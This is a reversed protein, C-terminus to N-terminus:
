KGMVKKIADMRVRAKEEDSMSFGGSQSDQPKHQSLFTALVEVRKTKGTSPPLPLARALLETTTPIRTKQTKELEEIPTPRWSTDIM